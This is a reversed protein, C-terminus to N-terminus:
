RITRSQGIKVAQRVTDTSLGALISRWKSVGAERTHGAEFAQRAHASWRELDAPNDRLWLIIEALLDARGVPVVRGCDGQAIISAVEGHTSGIFLVPRGVALAGYLKSPIVSRELAPLLSVLHVDAASLSEALANRPQLPKMVINELHRAAIEQEVARKRQGDGVLLFRIGPEDRLREAADLLTSFEHARGFNGSYGVILDDGLGWAARLRNEDRAVPRLESEESWHHAICLKSRDIGRSQLHHAMAGMPCVNQVAARLSWDRLALSARAALTGDGIVGLDIAVEPFLDMLWNVLRARRLRLPLVVSVSLMPPDTCVICVDGARANRLLWGAVALHYSAYDIARGPTIARGFRTTPLRVIAVGDVADRRPLLVDGRDHYLRSTLAVVEHGAECLARALSTTMRSTASEDPHFYRNALIIKL